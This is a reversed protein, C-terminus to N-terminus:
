GVRRAGKAAWMQEQDAPVDAVDGDPGVMKVTAAMGPRATPTYSSATQQRAGAQQDNRAFVGRMTQDKPENEVFGESGWIPKVSGDPRLFPNRTTAPQAQTAAAAMRQLGGVQGTPLGMLGGLTTVAQGGVNTYPSMGQVQQNYIDKQLALAGEGARVQQGAAKEAAGAQKNAAYISTGAGIGAVVLPIAAPM